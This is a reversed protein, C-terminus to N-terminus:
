DGGMDVLHNSFAINMVFQNNRFFNETEEPTACEDGGYYPCLVLYIGIYDFNNSYYNGRLSINVDDKSLCVTQELTLTVNGRSTFEEPCKVTEIRTDKRIRKGNIREATVYYPMIKGITPPM